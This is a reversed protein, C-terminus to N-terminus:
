DIREIQECAIITEDNRQYDEVFEDIVEISYTSRLDRYRHM